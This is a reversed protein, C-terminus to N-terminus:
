GDSTCNLLTSDIIKRFNTKLTEKGISMISNTM